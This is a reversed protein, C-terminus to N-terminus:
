DECECVECECYEYCIACPVEPPTRRQVVLWTHVIYVVLFVILLFIFLQFLSRKVTNARVKRRQRTGDSPIRRPILRRLILRILWGTFFLASVALAIIALTM